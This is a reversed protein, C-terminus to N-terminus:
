ATRISTLTWRMLPPSAGVCRGWDLCASGGTAIRAFLMGEKVWNQGENKERESGCRFNSYGNGKEASAGRTRGGEGGGQGRGGEWCM